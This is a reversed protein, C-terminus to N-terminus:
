SVRETSKKNLWPLNWYNNDLTNINLIEKISLAIKYSLIPPVANGIMKYADNLKEYYFKFDDPFTQIRASERVSFRRAKDPYIFEWNDKKIKRMKGYEPHVKAHRGSAEVTYAVENWSKWRNRSMFRSSFSGTYYENGNIKLNDNSYNKNLSEKPIPLDSIADKLNIKIIEKRPFCYEKNINNNIGIIIVRKRAQPVGYNSSDLKKYYVKYGIEELLNIIKKFEDINNKYLIGPVNEALFFKPKKDRIVRIYEYFLKGRNDDIGKGSGAISWSQCPPGGIIGDCKPIDASPIKTLSRNDFIVGKHNEKYTKEVDKNNDNAWVINFGAKSFGLDLGGAGSFLTIIDM